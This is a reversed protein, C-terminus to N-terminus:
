TYIWNYIRRFEYFCLGFQWVEKLTGEQKGKAKNLANFKDECAQLKETYEHLSDETSKNEKSLKAIM